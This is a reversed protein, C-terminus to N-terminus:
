SAETPPRKGTVRRRKLCSGSAAEGRMDDGLVGRVYDNQHWALRTVYAQANRMSQASMAEFTRMREVLAGNHEHLFGEFCDRDPLGVIILDSLKTPRSLMVYLALAYDADKMWSPKNLFAVLGRHATVGQLGFHTLVERPALPVQWLTTQNRCELIFMSSFGRRETERAQKRVVHLKPENGVQVPFGNTDCVPRVFFHGKPVAAPGPVQLEYYEKDDVEVLVALPQYRLVVCAASADVAPEKPHLEIRRVTCPLERTLLAEPLNCSIRVKMGVFLPCMGILYGTKTMNVVKLAASAQEPSLSRGKTAKDIAQVFYLQQQAARAELIARIHQLRAVQEWALGGWYTSLLGDRGGLSETRWVRAQLEQWLEDPLRTGQRMHTLIRVLSQGSACTSFRGTGTFHVVIRASNKFLLRGLESSNSEQQRPDDEDENQLEVTDIASSAEQWECLSKQAAPRLQLFDGLQVGIPMRGFWEQLYSSVDLALADSRQLTFRYGAAHYVDPPTMSLEDIM